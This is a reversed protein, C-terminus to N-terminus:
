QVLTYGRRLRRETIQRVKERVSGADGCFIYRQVTVHVGGRIINVMLDNFLDREIQIYYFRGNLKNEFKIMVGRLKVM